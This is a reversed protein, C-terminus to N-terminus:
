DNRMRKEETGKNFLYAFNFLVSCLVMLHYYQSWEFTYSLLVAMFGALFYVGYKRKIFKNIVNASRGLIWIFPIFLLFGGDVLVQLYTATHVERYESLRM